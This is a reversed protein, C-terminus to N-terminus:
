STNVKKPNIKMKDVKIRRLHALKRKEQYDELFQDVPGGDQLFTEMLNDSDEEAEQNAAELLALLTDPRVQGSKSELQAQLTKVEEGLKGATAYKEVLSAKCERLIPEQSLNYEALSKNSAGM